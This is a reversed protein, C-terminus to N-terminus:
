TLAELKHITMVERHQAEKSRKNMYNKFTEIDFKGNKKFKELIKRHDEFSHLKVNLEKSIKEYCEISKNWIKEFDDQFHKTNWHLASMKYRSIDQIKEKIYDNNFKQNTILEIKKTKTSKEGINAAKKRKEPLKKEATEYYALIIYINLLNMWSFTIANIRDNNMSDKGEDKIIPIITIIKSNMGYVNYIRSFPYSRTRKPSVWKTYALIDSSNIKILGFSASKNIDFDTFNYIKLPKDELFQPNYIINRIFGNFELFAM